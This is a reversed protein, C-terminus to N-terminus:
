GVRVAGLEECLDSVLAELERERSSPSALVLEGGHEGFVQAIGDHAEVIGKLLVVDAARVVVKRTVMGEGVCPPVSKANTKTV